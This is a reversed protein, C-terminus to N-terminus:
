SIWGEPCPLISLALILGERSLVFSHMMCCLSPASPGGLSFSQINQCSGSILWPLNLYNKIITSFFNQVVRPHPPFPLSILYHSFIHDVNVVHFPLHHHHHDPVFLDDRAILSPALKVLTCYCWQKISQLQNQFYNVSPLATTAAPLFVM